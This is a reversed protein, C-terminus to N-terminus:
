DRFYFDIGDLTVCSYDYQLERAAQEWDICTCPWGCDDPLAGIDAAFERAYEEFYAEHIFAIGYPWERSGVDDRFAVLAAYEEREDEDLPEDDTDTESDEPDPILSALYEILEDIDRSDFVDKNSFDSVRM